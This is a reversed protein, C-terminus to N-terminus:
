KLGQITARKLLLAALLEPLLPMIAAYGFAAAFMASLLAVFSSSRM